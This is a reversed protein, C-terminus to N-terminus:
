FSIWPEQDKNTIHDLSSVDIHNFPLLTHPLISLKNTLKIHLYTVNLCKLRSNSTQGSHFKSIMLQPSLEPVVMLTSLQATSLLMIVKMFNQSLLISVTSPNDLDLLLRSHDEMVEKKPEMLSEEMVLFLEGTSLLGTQHPVSHDKEKNLETLESEQFITTPM